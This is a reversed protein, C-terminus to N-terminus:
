RLTKHCAFLNTIIFNGKFHCITPKQLEELERSISLFANETLDSNERFQSKKKCFHSFHEFFALYPRKLQNFPSLHYFYYFEHGFHTEPRKPVFFNFFIHFFFTKPQFDM